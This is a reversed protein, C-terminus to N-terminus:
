PTRGDGRRSAKEAYDLDRILADRDSAYRVVLELEIDDLPSNVLREWTPDEAALKLENAARMRAVRWDASRGDSDSSRSRPPRPNGVPVTPGVDFSRSAVGNRGPAHGIAVPDGSNRVRIGKRKKIEHWLLAFGNGVNVGNRRKQELGAALAYVTEAGLVGCAEHIRRQTDRTYPWLHSWRDLLADLTTVDAAGTSQDRLQCGVRREIAALADGDTQRNQQERKFRQGQGADGTGGETDFTRTSTSELSSTKSSVSSLPEAPQATPALNEAQCAPEPASTGTGRPSRTVTRSPSRRLTPRPGESDQVPVQDLGPAVRWITPAGGKVGRRPGGRAILTILGKKAAVALAPGVSNLHCGVEDALEDNTPDALLTQNNAHGLVADVLFRQLTTMERWGRHARLHRRAAFWRAAGIAAAATAKGSASGRYSM